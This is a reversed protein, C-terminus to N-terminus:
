YCDKSLRPVTSGFTVGTMRTVPFSKPANYASYRVFEVHGDHHLVNAGAPTHSFESEVPPIRDWMIPIGESGMSPTVSDPWVPVLAQVDASQYFDPDGQRYAEFLGVAQEDCVLSYGTYTYFLCSVCDPHLDGPEASPHEFTGRLRFTDSAAFPSDPCIFISLDTAYEPYIRNVDMIWNGPVPSLPPYTEGKSENAFMKCVLGIQKLNNACSSRRASERARGLAPLLVAALVGFIFLVVLWELWSVRLKM